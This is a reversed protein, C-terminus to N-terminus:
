QFISLINNKELANMNKTDKIMMIILYVVDAKKSHDVDRLSNKM